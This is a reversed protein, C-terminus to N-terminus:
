KKAVLWLYEAGKNTMDLDVSRPPLDIIETALRNFQL